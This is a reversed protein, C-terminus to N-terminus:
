GLIIGVILVIDVVNIEGDSNLDAFENYENDFIFNIAMIIDLINVIGDTNVDGTLSNFVRLIEMSLCHVSGGWNAVEGAHISIINKDTHEAFVALALDDEPLGFIPVYINDATQLSNVYVGEASGFGDEGGGYNPVYPMAIFEVDIFSEELVNYIQTLYPEDFTNVALRAETLWMVYGDAHGLIDGWDVPIFAIEYLGLNENFYERLESESYDPNDEFIQTTIVAKDNGNTQFNGGDLIIDHYDYEIDTSNFWSIFSNDIWNSTWNDLYDPSFDFKHNLGQLSQIGFDRAWIDHITGYILKEPPLLAQYEQDNYNNIVVFFHDRSGASNVFDSHFEVFENLSSSYYNEPGVLIIINEDDPVSEFQTWLVGITLILLIFKMFNNVIYNVYNNNM